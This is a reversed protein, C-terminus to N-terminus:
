PKLCRYVQPRTGFLADGHDGIVWGQAILREATRAGIGIGDATSYQRDQGFFNTAIMSGAQAILRLARSEALTPRAPIKTRKM